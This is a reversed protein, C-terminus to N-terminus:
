KALKGIMLKVLENEPRVQGEHQSNFAETGDKGCIALIKDAGGPHQDIWTTLDYIEDRVVTWCSTADAHTEVEALTYYDVLARQTNEVVGGSENEYNTLEKTNLFFSNVGLYIVLMVVIVVGGITLKKMNMNNKIKVFVV